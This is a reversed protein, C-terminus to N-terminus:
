EMVIKYPNSSTGNGSKYIVNNKLSLVPRVNLNQTVDSAYLGGSGAAVLTATHETDDPNYYSGAADMLWWSQDRNFLYYDTNLTGQQSGAFRAEDSTLLGIPYTLAQNGKDNSVTYLDDKSNCKFSPKNREQYNYFLSYLTFNGGYGLGTDIVKESESTLGYATSDFKTYQPLAVTRDGCFGSDAVYKKSTEDASEWISELTKKITSSHINAHTKDYTSSGPTGYMFGVYANDGHNENFVSTTVPGDTIMKISYDDNFRIIRWTQGMFSVYNNGVDGRFYYIKADDDNVFMGNGNDTRTNAITTIKKVTLTNGNVSDIKYMVSCADSNPCFFDYGSNFATVMDTTSVKTYEGSNLPLLNGNDSDVKFYNGYFYKTGSVMEYSIAESDINITYKDTSYNKVNFDIEDDDLIKNDELIKDTLYIGDKLDERGLIDNLDKNSNCPGELVDDITLDTVEKSSDLCYEGDSIVYSLVYGDDNLKINYSLKTGSLNLNTEDLSSVHNIINGNANEYAYKDESKTIAIKSESLFINKKSKIFIGIVGPIAILVLISIIAIVALLEILTFGKKNKM